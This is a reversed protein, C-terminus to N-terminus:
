AGSGWSSCGRGRGLLFCPCQHQAFLVFVFALVAPSCPRSPVRPFLPISAKQSRPTFSDPLAAPPLSNLIKARSIETTRRHVVSINTNALGVSNCHALSQCSESQMKIIRGPNWTPSMCGWAWKQSKPPSITRCSELRDSTCWFAINTRGRRHYRNAIQLHAIQACYQMGHNSLPPQNLPRCSWTPSM